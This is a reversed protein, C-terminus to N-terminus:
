VKLLWKFNKQTIKEAMVFPTGRYSTDVGMLLGTEVDIYASMFHDGSTDAKMKIQYGDEPKLRILPKLVDEYDEFYEIKFEYGFIQDCVVDKGVKIRGEKNCFNNELMNDFFDAYIMNTKSQAYNLAWFSVMNCHTSAFKEAMAQSCELVDKIAEFLLSEKDPFHKQFQFYNEVVANLTQSQIKNM